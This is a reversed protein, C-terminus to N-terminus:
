RSSRTMAAPTSRGGRAKLATQVPVYGAAHATPGLCPVTTLPLVPMLEGRM